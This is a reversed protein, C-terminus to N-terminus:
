DGFTGRLVITEPKQDDTIERTVIVNAYGRLDEEAEFGLVYSGKTPGSEVKALRGIYRTELKNNKSELWAGYFTKGSLAPLQPVMLGATFTGHEYSRNFEATLASEIGHLEVVELGDPTVIVAPDRHLSATESPTDTYTGGSHPFVPSIIDMSTLTVYLAGAVAIVIGIILSPTRNM